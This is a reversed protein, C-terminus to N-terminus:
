RDPKHRDLLAPPFRHAELPMAELSVRVEGLEEM